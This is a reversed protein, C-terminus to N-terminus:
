PGKSTMECRALSMSKSCKAKVEKLFTTKGSQRPGTLALIPYKNKYVNMQLKIVRNASMILRKFHLYIILKSFSAYNVKLIFYIWIQFHLTNLKSFSFPYVKFFNLAILQSLM